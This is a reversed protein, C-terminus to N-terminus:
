YGAPGYMSPRYDAEFMIKKATGVRMVVAWVLGAFLGLEEEDLCAQEEETLAYKRRDPVTRDVKYPSVYFVGDSRSFDAGGEQDFFFTSGRKRM